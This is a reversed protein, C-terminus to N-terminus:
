EPERSGGELRAYRRILPSASVGHAVISAVIVLTTLVWVEENGSHRTALAAYYLAAVGIPGFWGVFLADHRNEIDPVFSAIALMGPLRRLVLVAAVAVLGRAGLEWWDQWPLSIGLLIFIPLIFFRNTAEQVREEAIRDRNSVAADFALGAVFVALLGDAGVLQAGGLVGLSLALTYALFSSGEIAEREEALRLLQGALYGVGVGILLAGVVSWIISVLIWEGPGAAGTAGLLLLAAMVFPMALGDNFGSEASIIRRLRVPVRREAFRGTVITSAIIPDTPSVAAGILIATLVPVGLALWIALGSMLWMLPTLVGVLLAISRWSARLDPVPLRLAVAMLGIALTLRAGEELILRGDGWQAPDIVGVMAPGIVVGAAVAVLPESLPLHRIIRSGLGLALALAGVVLLGVNLDDV